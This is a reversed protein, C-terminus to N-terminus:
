DENRADLDRSTGDRDRVHPIVVVVVLLLVVVVVLLLVLLLVLLWSFFSFFLFDEMVNPVPVNGRWM